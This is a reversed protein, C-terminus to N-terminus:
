EVIHIFKDGDGWWHFHDTKRSVEAWFVIVFGNFSAPCQSIDRHFCHYHYKFSFPKSWWSFFFDNKYFHKWTFLCTWFYVVVGSKEVTEAHCILKSLAAVCPYTDMFMLTDNWFQFFCNRIYDSPDFTYMFLCNPADHVQCWVELVNQTQLIHTAKCAFM